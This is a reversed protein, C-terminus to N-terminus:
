GGLRAGRAALDVLTRAPAFRPGLTAAAAKFWALLRAAGIEDISSAVGGTHPAFGWGLVSGVDADAAAALVGDDFCRLTEAAQRFMLREAVAAIAPQVPAPPFLEGLGPWLVAGERGCDYFGAGAKVGARGRALLAQGAPRGPNAVHAPGHDAETQAEIREILDVAVMDTPRLPGMPMGARRGANEILAPAVGEALLAMGELMYGVVVRTTFFGRGGRVAVPTKGLRRALDFGAALTAESTAACRIIEVLAM